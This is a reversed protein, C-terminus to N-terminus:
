VLADSNGPCIVGSTDASAKRAGRGCLCDSFLSFLLCSVRQEFTLINRIILIAFKPLFQDRM